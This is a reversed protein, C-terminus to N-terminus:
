IVVFHTIVLVLLITLFVILTLKLIDQANENKRFQLLSKYIVSIAMVLLIGLIIVMLATIMETSQIGSGLAFSQKISEVKSM